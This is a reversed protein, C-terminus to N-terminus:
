WIPDPKRERLLPRVHRWLPGEKIRGHGPCLRRVHHGQEMFAALQDLALEHDECFPPYALTLTRPYVLPPRANLLTDGTFLTGSPPHHLFISGATHGPVWHVGLGAIEDGDELLSPHLGGAPFSNEIWGMIGTVGPAPPVAPRKRSGSLVAADLRHAFVSVGYRQALRFANGAHDSHRHTLIVAVLDRPDLGARRLELRISPWLLAHGSDVLVPGAPTDPLLWVNSVPSGLRKVTLVNAVM